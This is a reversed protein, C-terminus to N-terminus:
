LGYLSKKLKCVQGINSGGHFTWTFKSRLNRMYFANQDFQQLKWGRNVALSLLVKLTNMNAVLAFTEIYNIM